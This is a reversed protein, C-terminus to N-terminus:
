RYRFPHYKGYFEDFHNHPGQNLVTLVNAQVILETPLVKVGELMASMTPTSILGPRSTLFRHSHQNPRSTRETEDPKIHRDSIDGTRESEVERLVNRNRVVNHVTCM